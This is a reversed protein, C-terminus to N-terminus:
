KSKTWEFTVTEDSFRGKEFTQLDPARISARVSYTQGAPVPANTGYHYFEALLPYLDVTKDTDGGSLALSIDAHPLPENTEKDLLVIELHNQDTGEGTHAKLEGNSWTWFPEAGEVIFSVKYPGATKIEKSEDIVTKIDSGIEYDSTLSAPEPGSFVPHHESSATEVPFTVVPAANLHVSKMGAHRGYAPPSVSVKIEADSDISGSLHTGYHHVDGWTEMLTATQDGIIVQVTSGPLYRKTRKERLTIGLYFADSPPENASGDPAYTTRPTDAFIGIRYSGSQREAHLRKDLDSVQKRYNATVDNGSSATDGSDDSPDGEKGCGATLLVALSVVLLM